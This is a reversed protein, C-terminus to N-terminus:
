LIAIETRTQYYEPLETIAEFLASGREDYFYKCPLEPLPRRSLGARVEAAMAELTRQTTRTRRDPDGRRAALTEQM